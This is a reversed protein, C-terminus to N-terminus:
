GPYDDPRVSWDNDGALEVYEVVYDQERELVYVRVGETGKLEALLNELQLYQLVLFTM